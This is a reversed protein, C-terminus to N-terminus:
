YINNKINIKTNYIASKNGIGELELLKLYFIKDM